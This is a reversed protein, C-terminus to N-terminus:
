ARGSTSSSVTLSFYAIGGVDLLRQSLAQRHRSGANDRGAAACSASVAPQLLKRRVLPARFTKIKALREVGPVRLRRIPAAGTRRQFHAELFDNTPHRPSHSLPRPRGKPESARSLRHLFICHLRPHEAQRHTRCRQRPRRAAGQLLVAVICRDRTRVPRSVALNERESCKYVTRLRRHIGDAVLIHACCLHTDRDGRRFRDKKDRMKRTYLDTRCLVGLRLCISDM